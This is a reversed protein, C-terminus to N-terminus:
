ESKRSEIQELAADLTPAIPDPTEVCSLAGRVDKLGSGTLVVVIREDRRVLGREAAAEVGAAAAACSPEAFLGRETAVERLARRIEDETVAIAAGGSERIERLAVVGNRPAEVVISDAMSHAGPVVPPVEAGSEFGRVLSDAGAAQVALIRPVRDIWGLARLDRFGKALGSLIVGDGASVAVVDPAQWGRQGQGLQEAIEFAGTRKGDITLPNYATNRNIWGFRRTAEVSLEYAQDYTGDVRLVIAGFALMQALKGEPASAPVFLVCELGAAACCAALATAANGTSAAVVRRAGSERAKAVVLESARDKYSGSPNRADDKFWLDGFGRRRAWEGGDLLPTGGVGIPPLSEAGAIPLLGSYRRTDRHPSAAISERLGAPASAFDYEFELVGLLCGGAPTEPGLTPSLYHQAGQPDFREGTARCVLEHRIM